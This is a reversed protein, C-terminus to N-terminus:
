QTAKFLTMDLDEPAALQAVDQLLRKRDKANTFVLDYLTCLNFVVSPTLNERPNHAILDELLRVSESAQGLYVLAIARNNAAHHDWPHATLAKGFAEAAQAYQGRCVELLGQDILSNALGRGGGGRLTDARSFWEVASRTDAIELFVRGIRSALEACM